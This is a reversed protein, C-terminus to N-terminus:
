LAGKPGPTKGEAAAITTEVARWFDEVKSLVGHKLVEASYGLVPAVEAEDLASKAQREFQACVASPDEGLMARDTALQMLIIRLARVDAWADVLKFDGM